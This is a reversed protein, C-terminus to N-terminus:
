ALALLVGLPWPVLAWSGCIITTPMFTSAVWVKRLLAARFLTFFVLGAFAGGLWCTFQVPADFFHALTALPYLPWWTFYVTIIEFM